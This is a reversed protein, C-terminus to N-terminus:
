CLLLKRLSPTGDYSRHRFRKVIESLEVESLETFPTKLKLPLVHSSLKCATLTQILAHRLVHQSIFGSSLVHCLIINLDIIM